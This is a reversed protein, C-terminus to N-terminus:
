GDEGRRREEGAVAPPGEAAGRARQQAKRKLLNRRMEAALERERGTAAGRSAEQAPEESRALEGSGARGARGRRRRGQATPAGTGDLVSNRAAM